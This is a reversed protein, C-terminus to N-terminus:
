KYAPWPEIPGEHGRRYTWDGTLLKGLAFAFCGAKRRWTDSFLVVGLIGYVAVRLALGTTFLSLAIGKKMGRFHKELFLKMSVNTWTIVRRNFASMGGWFHVIESSPTYWVQFGNQVARYCFDVEETYMYFQEDLLGIRDLLTRRILFAAGIVWDVQQETDYDFGPLYYRSFLPIPKLVTTLFFADCFLNWVSPFTRVTRQLNGDPFLLKCGVVGAEPHADMTRCLAALAGARVVTDPNLLLIFEGLAIRIGRNNAAAFGLNTSNPVLVVSPYMKAILDRSGDTSANDVVIVEFPDAPPHAFVSELCPQLVKWENTNVIVMSLKM